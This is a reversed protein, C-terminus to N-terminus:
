LMGQAMLFEMEMEHDLNKPLNTCFQGMKFEALDNPDNFDLWAGVWWNSADLEDLVGELAGQDETLGLLYRKDGDVPIAFVAYGKSRERGIFLRGLVKLIFDGLIIGYLINSLYKM